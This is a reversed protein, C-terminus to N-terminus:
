IEKLSESDPKPKKKVAQGMSSLVNIKEVVKSFFVPARDAIKVTDQRNRPKFPEVSGMEFTAYSRIVSAPTEKKKGSMESMAKNLAATDAVRPMEM